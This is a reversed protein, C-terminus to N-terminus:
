EVVALVDEESLVLLEIDGQKYETGAYSSFLVRDGVKVDMPQVRGKEDLKGPGVAIVKGQRPREKASEPLLIGGKSTQAEMREIIIRNSLPKMNKM